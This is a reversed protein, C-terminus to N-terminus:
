RTSSLAVSISSFIVVAAARLGQRSSERDWGALWTTISCRMGIRIPFRLVGGLRSAPRRNVGIDARSQLGGFVM